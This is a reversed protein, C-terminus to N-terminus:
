EPRIIFNKIISERPMIVDDLVLHWKEGSELCNLVKKGVMCNNAETMHCRRLDVYNRILFEWQQEHDPGLSKNEEWNIRLLPINDQLDPLSSDFCPILVADPRIRMIEDVMLKHAYLEWETDQIYLIFDRASNLIKIISSDMKGKSADKLYFEINFMGAIHRFNEPFGLEDHPPITFRYPSTVAFVVADYQEHTALFKKMSYWLSTAVRGHTTVSYGQHAIWEWWSIDVEGPLNQRPNAFSDGYVGIKM